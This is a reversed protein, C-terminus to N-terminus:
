ALAGAHETLAVVEHLALHAGDEVAYEWAEAGLHARAPEFFRTALRAAIAPHHPAANFRHAAGHLRAGLHPEGLAATAAAIGDVAESLQTEVPIESAYAVVEGFLSIAEAYRGLFLALLAENGHLVARALPDNSRELRARADALLRGATGDEGMALSVYSLNTTVTVCRSANGASAYLAIAEEGACLADAYDGCLALANLTDALIIRDGSARAYAVAEQALDRTGDRQHVYFLAALANMANACGAFDRAAAALDFSERAAAEAEELGAQGPLWVPIMALRWLADARLAGLADAGPLALASRLWREGENPPRRWLNSRYRRPSGSPARRTV